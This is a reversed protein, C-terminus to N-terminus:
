AVFVAYGGVLLIPLVVAAVAMYAAAMGVDQAVKCSGKGSIYASTLAVTISLTFVIAFFIFVRDDIM